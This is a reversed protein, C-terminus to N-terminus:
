APEAIWSLTDEDWRYYNIGFVDDVPEPIPAEWAFIQTNLIWSPYPKPPLFADLEESYSGDIEAYNGRFAKSQDISPINTEPDYHIGNRTNRSTRIVKHNEPLFEKYHEEWSSIGDELDFEDRGVFINVVINHENVHAYHAM